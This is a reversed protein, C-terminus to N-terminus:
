HRTTDNGPAEDAATALAELHGARSAMGDLRALVEGLADFGEGKTVIPGANAGTLEVPKIVPMTRNLLVNMADIRHQLTPIVWTRRPADPTAAASQRNGKALSILFGVPDAGKEIRERTQSTVKNRTGKKRGSGPTKPTGKKKGRKKTGGVDESGTM